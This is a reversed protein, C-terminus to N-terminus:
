SNSYVHIYTHIYTHVTKIPFKLEFAKKNTKHPSNNNNILIASDIGNDITFEFSDM